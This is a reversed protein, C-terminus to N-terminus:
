RRGDQGDEGADGLQEVVSVVHSRLAAAADTVISAAVADGSRAAELVLPALAAVESKSAQDVWPILAYPDALGVHKILLEELGTPQARGDVARAVCGLAQLAIWYGGGEDGLVAGWGGVRVMRGDTARGVAISGTGAILLIGPGEGFASEFAAEVDTGVGVTSALGAETLAERAQACVDARGAGAMGAWLARAPLELGAPGVAMAVAEAVVEASAKVSTASVVAGPGRGRALERGAEDIVVAEAHSGGVDVGVFYDSV